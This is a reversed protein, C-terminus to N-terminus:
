WTGCFSLIEWGASCSIDQVMFYYLFFVHYLKWLIKMKLGVFKPKVAMKILMTATELIMLFVLLIFISYFLHIYFM